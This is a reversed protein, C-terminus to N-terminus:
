AGRLYRYTMVDKKVLDQTANSKQGPGPFLCQPRRPEGKRKVEFKIQYSGSPSKRGENELGPTGYFDSFSTHSSNGDDISAKRQILGSGSRTKSNLSPLSSERSKITPKPTPEKCEADPHKHFVYRDNIVQSYPLTVLDNKPKKVSTRPSRQKNRHPSRSRKQQMM